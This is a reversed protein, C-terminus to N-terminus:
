IGTSKTEEKISAYEFVVQLASESILTFGKRTYFFESQTVVADNRLINDHVAMSKKAM